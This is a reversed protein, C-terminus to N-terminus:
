IIVKLKYFLYYNKVSKAGAFYENSISHPLPVLVKYYHFFNLEILIQNMRSKYMM